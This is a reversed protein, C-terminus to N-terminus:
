KHKKLCNLHVVIINAIFLLIYPVLFLFKGALFIATPGDAGGIIGVAGAESFSLFMIFPHLFNLLVLLDIVIISINIYKLKM